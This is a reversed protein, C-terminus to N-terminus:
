HFTVTYQAQKHSQHIVFDTNIKGGNVERGTYDKEAVSPGMGKPCVAFWM